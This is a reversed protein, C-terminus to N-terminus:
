DLDFGVHFSLGFTEDWLKGLVLEEFNVKSNQSRNSESRIPHHVELREEYECEAQQEFDKGLEVEDHLM